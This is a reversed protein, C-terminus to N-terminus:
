AGKRAFDLDILYADDEKAGFLMNAIRIDGHVYGLAHLEQLRRCIRVCQSISKPTHVDSMGDVFMYVLLTFDKARFVRCEPYFKRLLEDPPCQRTDKYLRGVYNYFKYVVHKGVYVNHSARALPKQM